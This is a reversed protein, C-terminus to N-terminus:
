HFDFMVRFLMDSAFCVWAHQGPLRETRVVDQRVLKQRGPSTTCVERAEDTKNEDYSTLVKKLIPKRTRRSLGAAGPCILSAKM